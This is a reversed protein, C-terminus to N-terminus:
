PIITLLRTKTVPGRKATITVNTNAVVAQTSINFSKQTAGPAVTTSAPVTAKASSSTLLVNAGGAPAAHTITVQGTTSVGGVVTSPSVTLDSLLLTYVTLVCTKQVAGTAATITVTQTATVNNVTVNFNVTKQGALVTVAAPLSTFANNDSLTVLKGGAPANGNLQVSAPIVQGGAAYAPTTKVLIVSPPVVDITDTKQLGDYEGTVTVTVTTAVPHSTALFTSSSTGAAINVSAPVSLAAPASSTLTVTVGGTPAYGTLHAFSTFQVGGVVAAYPMAVMKLALPGISIKWIGRGFTAAYLFGTTANVELDNVRVNPLGLPATANSWTVGGNDTMFVGIDTGVYWTNLPDSPDRAIANAPVDPLGTAGSGSVDDWTRVGAITNSCRWLHGTGTGAVAVLVDTSTTPNVSIDKIVKNPLSVTGSDIQSWTTATPANSTMWVDGNSAGTYVRSSNSPSIGISRGNGSSAILQGSGATNWSAGRIRFRNTLAYITNGDNSMALPSIFAASEGSTSPTIDSFSSWENSTSYVGLSQSTSVQKAGNTPNIACYGGDGAWRCNWNELDGNANPSANDQTGGLLKTADTPHTAMAYFMAIGLKAGLGTFTATRATPNYVCRFIGGDSGVLVTNPNTPHNAFSHQDNHTLAGGTYTLGIDDWNDGGDPSASVTILGVYVVDKTIGGVVGTSTGIWFDYTSQSWNYNSTGTPFGVSVDEWSAAGTKSRWIKRNSTDLVYLTLPGDSTTRKSAAVGYISGFPAGTVQTWSSGMNVSVYLGNSTAVYYNRVGGSDTAITLDRCDGNPVNTATWTAGGNVSRYVDGGGWSGRGVSVTVIDTNSPEILIDSVANGGFDALGTQTWNAGGDTSKMIGMSYPVGGHHDGTGVYIVNPDVPDVAISSVTLYDWKDSNLSNWTAGSDTSKFIGGNGGGAYIISANSPSYAIANVRGAIPRVGYYTRYPVDMNKPGVFSWKGGIALTGAQRIQAAPMNARHIVARNYADVDIEDAGPNVREELFYEFSEWYDVGSEEGSLGKAKAEAKLREVMARVSSLSRLDYGEAWPQKQTQTVKLSSKNGQAIVAGVVLTAVVGLGLGSRLVAKM